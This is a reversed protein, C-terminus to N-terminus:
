ARLADALADIEARSRVETVAVLFAHDALEAAVGPKAFRSLLPGVDVGRARAREVLADAPEETRVLFEKFFPQAFALSLDAVKELQEAAYHAKRLCLESVERLGEPGLLSLYVTARLAM